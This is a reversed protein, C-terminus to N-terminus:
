FHFSAIKQKLNRAALAYGGDSGDVFHLHNGNYSQVLCTVLAERSKHMGFVLRGSLFQSELYESLKEAQADSGDMVMRLMGDFKRFDTNDVLEDRYHGWRVEKTDINHAVLYAGAVNQFLIKIAYRLKKWRGSFGTRVRWEHGLMAPNFTLQMDKPRLPHYNAVDGYITQIKESVAQFTALNTALDSSMAAVLLSLKHGNFSPVGQWRCEFGDFCAEAPGENERVMLVGLTDAAKVRKEAEYWGLGSMAAQTMHASLRIKAVQVWLNQRILDVVKVLGVRLNLEFSVRSLKQAGRLAVIVREVLIDPVAFSAGDGGFVFPIDISRDVNTVAAICAVGVTNVKKYDGAEIANTSGEVDAIVIWWDEPVLTHRCTELSESFNQLAPLDRYFYRSDTLNNWKWNSVAM